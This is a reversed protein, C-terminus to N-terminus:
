GGLLTACGVVYSYASRCIYGLNFFLDSLLSSQRFLACIKTGRLATTWTPLALSILEHQLITSNIEEDEVINMNQPGDLSFDAPDREGPSTEPKPSAPTMNERTPSLRDPFIDPDSDNETVSEEDDL